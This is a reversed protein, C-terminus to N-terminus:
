FHTVLSLCDSNTLNAACYVTVCDIFSNETDGCGVDCTNDSENLCEEYSEREDTCNSPEQVSDVLSCFSGCDGTISTCSGDQAEECLEVCDKASDCGGVILLSMPMSLALIALKRFM